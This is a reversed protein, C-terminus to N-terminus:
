PLKIPTTLTFTRAQGPPTAACTLAANITTQHAAVEVELPHGEHDLLVQWNAPAPNHTVLPRLANVSLSLGAQRAFHQAAQVPPSM